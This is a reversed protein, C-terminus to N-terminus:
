SGEWLKDDSAASDAMLLNNRISDKLLRPHQGLWSIKRYWSSSDIQNLPISGNVIIANDKAHIFKMLLNLLTTKGAGSPGIVAIKQKAKISISFDKLANKKGNHYCYNLNEIRISKFPQDMTLFGKENDVAKLAFLKQLEIAAGVAEAKAHYHVSLERLPQFFEPALLLIFLAGQLTMNDLVWWLSNENSANIFGMGLYIAVVAISVASFVELVASSLFAIKLVKMTSIRYQNACYFIKRGQLNVKNLFRLTTLGQM